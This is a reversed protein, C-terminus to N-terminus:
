YNNSLEIRYINVTKQAISIWNSRNNSNKMKINKIINERLTNDSLLKIIGQALATSNCPPVLLGNFGDIVYENIGEVDTAIIPKDFVFTTQPIGSQSASVYPCVIFTSRKNLIALEEETVSRNIFEISRDELKTKDFYIEGRGAIILKLNPEERKVINFADILYELGKYPLIIGYFLITRKEEEVQCNFLKYTEFLGFKVVNINRNRPNFSKSYHEATNNSHFIVNNNRKSIFNVTSYGNFIRSGSRDIVEHLTFVIPKKLLRYIHKFISNQGILHIIDYNQKNIFKSLFLVQFFYNIYFFRKRKSYLFVYFNNLSHLYKIIRNDILKEYLPKKLFGTSLYSDSLNITFHDRSQSDMLCFLDVDNGIERLYRALPMTSTHFAYTLIAIKM